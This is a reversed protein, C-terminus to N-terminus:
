VRTHVIYLFKDIPKSHYRRTYKYFLYFDNGWPNGLEKPLGKPHDPHKVQFHPQIEPFEVQAYSSFDYPSTWFLETNKYWPVEITKIGEPFAGLSEWITRHYVFTGNVINGGGFVKHGIKKKKPKFPGRQTRVGDTHMYTCGFNFLKFKPYKKFFGVVEEAYTEEYEDDSDLLCFIEGQASKFGTNYATIRNQNPQNVVKIWPYNPIELPFSSGDNVIVHEFNEKSFTQNKVSEICRLLQDAREQDAVYVPTIISIKLTGM